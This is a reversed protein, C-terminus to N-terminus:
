RKNSVYKQLLIILKSFWKKTIEGIIGLIIVGVITYFVVEVNIGMNSLTKSIKEQNPLVINFIINFIILIFLAILTIHFTRRLNFFENQMKNITNKEIDEINKIEQKKLNSLYASLSKIALATTWTYIIEKKNLSWGFKDDSIIYSKKLHELLNQTVSDSIDFLQLVLDMKGPLFFELEWNLNDEKWSIDPMKYIYERVYSIGENFSSYNFYSTKFLEDYKKLTCLAMLTSAPCINECSASKWKGGGMHLSQHFMIDKNLSEKLKMKLENNSMCTYALMETIMTYYMYYPRSYSGKKYGWGGDPNRQEILWEIASTIFPEQILNPSVTLFAYLSKTTAWVSSREESCWSGSNVGSVIQMKKLENLYNEIEQQTLYGSEYLGSIVTSQTGASLDEGIYRRAAFGSLGNVLTIRGYKKLSEVGKALLISIEM